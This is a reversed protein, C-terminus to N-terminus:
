LRGSNQRVVADILAKQDEPSSYSEINITIHFTKGAARHQGMAQAQIIEREAKDQADLRFASVQLLSFILATGTLTLLVAIGQKVM